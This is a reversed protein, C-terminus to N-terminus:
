PLAFRCRMSFCHLHSSAYVVHRKISLDMNPSALAAAHVAGNEVIRMHLLSTINTAQTQYCFGCQMRSPPGNSAKVHCLGTVIGELPLVLTPNQVPHAVIIKRDSLGLRETGMTSVM